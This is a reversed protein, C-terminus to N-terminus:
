AVHKWTIGERVQRIANATVGFHDALTTLGLQPNARIHRVADITLKANYVQEGLPIKGNGIADSINESRTGWRLNSLLNHAPNDDAHLGECGEPCPGVFATLVLEHVQRSKGRGLAVTLHGDAKRGPRLLRGRCYNGNVIRDISCVRGSSSVFYGDFGAVPLWSDPPTCGSVRGAIQDPTTLMNNREQQKTM